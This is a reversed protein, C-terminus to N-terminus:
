IFVLFLPDNCHGLNKKSQRFIKLCAKHQPAQKTINLKRHIHKTLYLKFISLFM